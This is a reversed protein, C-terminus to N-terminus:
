FAVIRLPIFHILNTLRKIQREFVSLVDECYRTESTAFIVSQILHMFKGLVLYIIMIRLFQAPLSNHRQNGENRMSTVECQHWKQQKEPRVKGRTTQVVHREPPFGQNQAAKRTFPLCLIYAGGGSILGDM